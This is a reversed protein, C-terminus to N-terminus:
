ASVTLVPCTARRIVEYSVAGLTHASVKVLATRKAGMVILDAKRAAAAKLIGDAVFDFGVAFEPESGLRVAPPLLQQLKERLSARAKAQWQNIAGEDYFKLGPSPLATPPMVHLLILKAEPQNVLFLACDLAKASAPHFDTAFLIRQFEGPTSSDVEIHPGVTLVPCVARRLVEEAVSGLALKKLGSRGHTGLVVLDIDHQRIVASIVSWVAGARLVIEHPIREFQSRHALTEMRQKVEIRQQEHPLEPILTVSEPPIVHVLAMKSGQRRAIAVAYNLAKESADSFDTALLINKFSISKAERMVAPTAM